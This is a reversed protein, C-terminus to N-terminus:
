QDRLERTQRPHRLSMGRAEDENGLAAAKEYYAKAADSDKPGGRGGQAFAGMRELAAAHGQAAAREFLARAAADDKPGGIGEATMMGLQYPAEASNAGAARALLARARVSDSPAGNSDTLALAVLNIAGRSNGATMAREFLKEAQARDKTVGPGTALLVGLEV